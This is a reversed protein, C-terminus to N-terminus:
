FNYEFGVELQNMRITIAQSPDFMSPGSVKVEPAYMMFVTWENDGSNSTYGATYHDEVVGPALMNFNLETSAVPQENTSFGVRWTDKGVSWEYGIKYVSVDDWGFGAGNAGGLCGSGQAQMTGTTLASNLADLCLPPTTPGPPIMTGIISNSISAVDTYNIQQYDLLLTSTASTKIALGVTYTSPIDFDGGEAFLGSYDDFEGMDFKSQYSIGLTVADSLEVNMGLKFGFGTATDHDNNTLKEPNLSNNAFPALGVAEFAQVAVIFSAGIGVAKNVQYAYSTNVFLQMLNVGAHGAGYAGTMDELTYTQQSLMRASGDEYDTNMGGNGYVSIGWVSQEDIRSSYGFSPVLFWESQSDVTGPIHSFPAMCTPAPIGSPGNQDADGCEFNPTNFIPSGAPMAPGGAVTYSRVPNFFSVGFDMSDGVQLLNAPNNGSSISSDGKAVGAGAMGKEKAGYGHSFYGNTAYINTTILGSLLLATAVRTKNM